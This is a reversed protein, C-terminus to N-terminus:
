WKHPNTLLKEIFASVIERLRKLRSDLRSSECGALGRAGNSVFPCEEVNAKLGHVEFVSRKKETM